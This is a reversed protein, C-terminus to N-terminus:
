RRVGVGTLVIDVLQDLFDAPMPHGRLLGRVWLAGMLLDAVAAVDTDAPIEGRQVARAFVIRERDLRDAFFGRAISTLGPRHVTAAFVVAALEGTDPDTLLDAVGSVLAVLDDRLNGTDPVPLDLLDANGLTDALLADKDSWWRYITTKNVGSRAAIEEITLDDFGRHRLLELTTTYIADAQRPGTGPRRTHSRVAPVM